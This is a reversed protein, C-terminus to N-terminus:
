TNLDVFEEGVGNVEELIEVSEGFGAAAGQAGFAWLLCSPSDSSSLGKADVLSVTPFGFGTTIM